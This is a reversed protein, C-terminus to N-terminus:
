EPDPLSRSDESATWNAPPWVEPVSGSATLFEGFARVLKRFSRCSRYATALDFHATLRAQDSTPLYGRGEQMRLQLERKADRPAEPDDHPPADFRVGGHGRLSEVAALLWAEYERNAMVVACPVQGAAEHAWAELTPAHTRPCADDADFVVLIAGCNPTLCAVRVATQLGDKQVLQTRRRRHPRAVQVSWASAAEILRRLLVPVASEDAQGEVIPQVIM